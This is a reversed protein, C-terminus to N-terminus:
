SAIFAVGASALLGTGLLFALRWSHGAVSLSEPQIGRRRRDQNAAIGVSIYHIVGAVTFGGFACGLRLPFAMAPYRALLFALSTLIAAYVPFVLPGRRSSMSTLVLGVGGFVGVTLARSFAPHTMLELM